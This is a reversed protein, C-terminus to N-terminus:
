IVTKVVGGPKNAIGMAEYLIKQHPEPTTSKRVHFTKGKRGPLVVTIRQQTGLMQRITEWSYVLGKAKLKTRMVHVFHYALLSIFLHGSVREEKHHFVPRLGFETKLSRFVAELDTLTTYTRWLTAEDWDELDTRLAYVGPHTAQTQPKEQRLWHIQTAKGTSQDQEVEIQYHQAARSYKQQLRGIRQLIKHYLKTCGKKSLGANLKDLAEEFRRSFQDQIAKEKAERASSHCHLLIEGTAKDVVRQISVTQGATEKVTIAPENDDFCRKRQRSVVLYHYGHQKLWDINGQTAIGADLVVTAGPRANLGTLMEELTNPESVNGSFIKSYRPFGSVDLVLGLTVLPCDSRKEKSHGRQALPNSKAEGEFYTNTLDYLTITDQFQFLAKEEGYLHQELADKHKWLNDSAEYLRRLPLSEFDYRLLDGLGSTQQLWQHSSLESGPAAMRAVVNAVAAAREHQNFGLAQLKDIFGLDSMASLAVHEIGISRPRLVEVRDIDIEHFDPATPPLNDENVAGQKQIIQASYREALVELQEPLQIDFLSDQHSLRQEIRSCLPQWDDRHIDFYRGLNLLTRQKVKGGIRESECLRYTYYPEGTQRSKITTRRIYM